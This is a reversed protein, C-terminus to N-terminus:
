AAVTSFDYRVGTLRESEAWLRRAVDEDRAAPVTGVRRPPGHMEGPGSPGFYEGGRVDPMTAAYLLPLAGMDASQGLTAGVLDGLRTSVVGASKKHLNTFSLGPHAAASVLPVGAVIARRHLELTFLLNALKAQAYARWKDNVPWRSYGRQWNLDGLRIRGMRHALSSVTVVRAGGAQRSALLRPLLLGTFAFHGLHNTGLQMEFGDATRQFPVAMVGANNVLVDVRDRQDGGAGAYRDAFARVSALDALDLLMLEASAGPVEARLRSLAQDGRGPDRAAMVVHAGHRALERATAYGLGSNAGTVVAVRGSQDPIDDVSWSGTM